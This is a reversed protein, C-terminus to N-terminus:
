KVWGPGNVVEFIELNYFPGEYYTLENIFSPTDPYEIEDWGLVVKNGDNSKRVTNKNTEVLETFDVLDLESTLIIIYTM